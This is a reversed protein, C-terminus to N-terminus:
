PLLKGEAMFLDEVERWSNVRRYGTILLNHPSTFL